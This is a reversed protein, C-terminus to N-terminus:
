RYIYLGGVEGELGWGGSVCVYTIGVRYQLPIKIFVFKGYKVGQLSLVGGGGGGRAVRTRHTGAEGDVM